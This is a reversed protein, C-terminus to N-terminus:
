HRAGHNIAVPSLHFGAQFNHGLSQLLHILRLGPSEQLQTLAQGLHAKPIGAAEQGIAGLRQASDGMPRLTVDKVQTVSQQGNAWLRHRGEEFAQVVDKVTNCHALEADPKLM